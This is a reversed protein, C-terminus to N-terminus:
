EMEGYVSMLSRASEWPFSYSLAVFSLEVLAWYSLEDLAVFSLEVLVLPESILSGRLESDSLAVFSLEVLAWYSLDDLALLESILSGRLKSNSFAM